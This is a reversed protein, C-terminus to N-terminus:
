GSATGMSESRPGLVRFHLNIVIRHTVSGSVVQSSRRNSISLRTLINVPSAACGPAFPLCSILTGVASPAFCETQAFRVALARAELPKLVPSMRQCRIFTPVTPRYVKRFPLHLLHGCANTSLISFNSVASSTISMLAGLGPRRGARSSIPVPLGVLRHQWPGSGPM